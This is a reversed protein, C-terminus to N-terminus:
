KFCESRKVLAVDAFMVISVIIRTDLAHTTNLTTVQGMMSRCSGKTLSDLSSLFSTYSLSLSLTGALSTACWGLCGHGHWLSYIFLTCHPTLLPACDVLYCGVCVGAEEVTVLWCHHELQGERWLLPLHGEQGCDDVGHHLLQAAQVSFPFAAAPHPVACPGVLVRWARTVVTSHASHRSKSSMKTM